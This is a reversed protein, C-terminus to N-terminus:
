VIELDPSDLSPNYFSGGKSDLGNSDSRDRSEAGSRDFHSEGFHIAQNQVLVYVEADSESRGWGAVASARDGFGM